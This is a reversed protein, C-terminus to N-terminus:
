MNGAKAVIIRAQGALDFCIERDRFGFEHLIKEIHLRRKPDIEFILRGDDTLHKEADRCIERYALLGDRGDTLAEIPEYLRVEDCLIAFEEAAIYPPNSVILDFRGTVASFWNSKRFEVRNDVAHNIANESAQKCAYDSQDVGLGTASLNETLLSIVIAGSGVGLDLVRSFPERLAAAVLSETEPRPDLVHKTIRFSRGYFERCGLIQSCPVRQRRLAIMDAFRQSVKPTLEETSRMTLGALSLQAAHALLLRADRMPSPVGQRGLAASADRLAQSFTSM